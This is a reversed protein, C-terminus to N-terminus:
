SLNHAPSQSQTTQTLQTDLLERVKRTLIEATFPKELLVIASEVASHHIIANDTYGSIYLIPVRFRLDTLRKVLEPGSMGPMVIDTILLHIPNTYTQCLRLAELGHRAEIVSYGSKELCRRTVTRVNHDDEVLLITESGSSSQVLTERNDGNKEKREAQPLYVEFTTGGGLKTFVSIHGGSQQVIGYVTALGLGTGQGVEKTTFFPEFIREQTAGDMGTGTDSVSLLVYGGPKVGINQQAYDSSLQVTATTLSLRGGHPMADRANVALNVIIQEIQSPDALVMELEPELVIILYIDEGILRRLMPELNTIIQNLNVLEAQLVQRRSFALLQRTLAAAREGAKKIQELDSHVPNDLAFSSLLMNSYGNIITLLNNFDHAIGGALRGVAEMKQAQRLQEELKAQIAQARERETIQQQLNLNTWVLEATREDIRQELEDHAKQLATEVQKRQNVEQQLLQNKEELELTRRALEAAQQRSQALLVARETLREQLGQRLRDSEIAAALQAGLGELAFQDETDLSGVADSQVALVGLIQKSDSIVLEVGLREAERKAAAAMTVFFPNNLNMVSLGIKLGRLNAGILFQQQVIPKTQRQALVRNLNFRNVPMCQIITTPQYPLGVIAAVLTRLAITGVEKPPHDVTAQFAGGEKIAAMAEDIADIGGIFFQDPDNKGAAILARYAGLASADNIGIIMKLQPYTQLWRQAIPAAGIHDGAMESAVIEVNPGFAAKIGDMIGTERQVLQPLVRYNFMAVQLSETKAVHAKAWAGAQTGLMYGAQYEEIGVYATRNAAGLDESQCVVRLGKQLAEQVVPTVIAPDIICVIFGAFGQNIFYRLANAQTHADQQGLKLPVALESKVNPILPHCRWNSLVSVDPCLVPTGAVAARGVPGEGLSVQYNEAAMQLGTKGYGAVLSLMDAGPHRQFLQTHYYGLEEKLLAMVRQYLGNLDSAAAIDLAVQVSLRVQRSRRELSEQHQQDLPTPTTSNQNGHALGILNDQGGQVHETEATELKALRQRMHSLETILQAKTKYQDHM